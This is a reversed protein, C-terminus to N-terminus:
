IVRIKDIGYYQFLKIANEDIIEGCVAIPVAPPCSVSPAALIRGLADDISVLTSKAMIAQRPSMATELPKLIPVSEPVPSLRPISGLASLVAIVVERNPPMMMVLYDPDAFEVIIGQKSLLVSLENGSYGYKKAEITLKMPEDGIFSYDSLTQRLRETYVVAESLRDRLGDNIYRNCRDLSYLMLYSPSTSAFISMAEDAMECIDSSLAKSLHLYGTGTLCPLTKHASDCCMDAGLDIPHKSEPLFKLYAGHANDVLLLVGHRHCVEALEKIDAMNGLYDPSTIYVAIVDNTSLYEELFEPTIDCSLLGKGWLWDIEIDLLACGYMFVKHANRGAAIVPKKNGKSLMALYLMAKISLSSGETSYLTRQTGFLSTAIDMSEKIIGTASYLVDAGDVETIDLGEIGMPGLGKHGPMHLRLFERDRYKELFDCIPTNM